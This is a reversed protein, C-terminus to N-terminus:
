VKGGRIRVMAAAAEPAERVAQTLRGMVLVAQVGEPYEGALPARIASVAMPDILVQSGDPRTMAASTISTGDTGTGLIAGVRAVYARTEAPLQKGRALLDDVQGPGANYAAFMAPYGYKGRLWKLYAAGAGINDKPAFPDAGLRYQERMEAFTGPMVQMLGMAGKPSVIPQNEGLLTRGGSEVRMVANIWAVPVGVRKSAKTVMPQWRKIRQSPSMAQESPFVSVPRPKAKPAAQVGGCLALMLVVILTSKAFIPM